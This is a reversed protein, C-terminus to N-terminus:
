KKLFDIFDDMEKVCLQYKKEQETKTLIRLTRVEMSQLRFAGFIGRWDLSLMLGLFLLQRERYFEDLLTIMRRAQWLNEQSWRKKKEENDRWGKLPEAEIDVWPFTYGESHKHGECSMATRFGIQNLILVMKKIGEDIPKGLKDTVKNVDFM